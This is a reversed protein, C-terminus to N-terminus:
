PTHGGRLLTAMTLAMTARLTPGLRGPAWGPRTFSLLVPLASKVPVPGWLASSCSALMTLLGTLLESPLELCHLLTM